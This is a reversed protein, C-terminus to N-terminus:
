LSYNSNIGQLLKKEKTRLNLKLISGDGFGAFVEEGDPSLVIQSVENDEAQM